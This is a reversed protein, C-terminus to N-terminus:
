RRLNQLGARFQALEPEGLGNIPLSRLVDRLVGRADDLMTKGTDTIVALSQRADRQNRTTSALCMKEMPKLARTVASPRLGVQHALDIRSCGAPGAGALAKLLRFESFSAGVITLARDLRRELSAATELFELVAPETINILDEDSMTTVMIHMIM